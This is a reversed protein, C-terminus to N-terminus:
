VGLEEAMVPYVACRCNAVEDIPAGMSMDLPYRMPYGGVMFPEAWPIPGPDGGEVYRRGASAHDDRVRDDFTALWGKFPAGWEGLLEYTGQNSARMSEVRSILDRRYVPMREQTFEWDAPDVDGEAYQRFLLGMANRTREMGWGDLQARALLDTMGQRTTSTIPSAFQLMYDEFWAVSGLNVVDFRAGLV